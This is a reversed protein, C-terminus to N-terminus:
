HEAINELLLFVRVFRNNNRGAISAPRRYDVIWILGKYPISYDTEELFERIAVQKRRECYQAHGGFHCWKATDAM